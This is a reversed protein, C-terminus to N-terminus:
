MSYAFLKARAMRLRLHIEKGRFRSLDSNGQWSVLGELDDGTLPDCDAFSFGAAPPPAAAALRNPMGGDVIEVRVFSGPQLTTYNLRLQEGACLQESLSFEAYDEADWAVLRNRRWQAWLYVMDGEAFSGTDRLSDYFYPVNHPAPSALTLLGWRDGDLEVIEPAPWLGGYREAMRLIPKREPRAWLMSDHSVALHVDLLDSARHFPSFFMLHGGSPHRCYCPAYIDWDVPDDPEATLVMRHNSWPGRFDDAEYRSVARRRARGSRLYIVYKAISDDYALINQTDLLWPTEMVPEDLHKWRLGDPSVGGVIDLQRSVREGIEGADGAAQLRATLELAQAKSASRGDIKFTARIGIGKYREDASGAPDRMMHMYGYGNESIEGNALLINNETSGDYAYLGLNPREWHFGDASEAYCWLGPYKGPINGAKVWPDNVSALAGYWMRMRGDERFVTPHLLNGAEWRRERRFVPQSPEAAQLSLVVGRPLDQPIYNGEVDYSVYGPFIGHWDLVPITRPRLESM